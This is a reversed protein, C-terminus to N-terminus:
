GHIRLRHFVQGTQFRAKGGIGIVMFCTKRQRPAVHRVAISVRCGVSQQVYDRAVTVPVFASGTLLQQLNEFRDTQFIGPNRRLATAEGRYQEASSALGACKATGASRLVATEQCATAKAYRRVVSDPARNCVHPVAARLDSSCVDSSCDSIRM